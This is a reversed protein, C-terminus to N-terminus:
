SHFAKNWFDYKIKVVAKKVHGKKADIRIGPMHADDPLLFVFLGQSLEVKQLHEDPVVFFEVDKEKSYPTKSALLKTPAWGIMESGSVVCQIDIYKRHAELGCSEFPKPDYSSVIAYINAGDIQCKGDPTDAKLNKLFEFAKDLVGNRFYAKYNKIQDLIM